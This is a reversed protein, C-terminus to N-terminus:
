EVVDINILLEVGDKLIVVVDKVISGLDVDVDVIDKEAVENVDVIFVEICGVDHVVENGVGDSGLRDGADLKLSEDVVLVSEEEVQLLQVDGIMCVIDRADMMPNVNVKLVEDVEKFLVDGEM